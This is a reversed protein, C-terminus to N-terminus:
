QRCNVQLSAERRVAVAIELFLDWNQEQKHWAEVEINMYYSAPLEMDEQM